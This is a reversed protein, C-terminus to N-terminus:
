KSGRKKMELARDIVKKKYTFKGDYKGSRTMKQITLQLMKDRFMRMNKGCETYISMAEDVADTVWDVDKPSFEFSDIIKSREGPDVMGAHKLLKDLFKVMGGNIDADNEILETGRLLYRKANFDKDSLVGFVLTQFDQKSFRTSPNKQLEDVLDKVAVKVVKKDSM